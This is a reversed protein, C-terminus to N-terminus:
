EMTLKVMQNFQGMWWLLHKDFLLEVVREPVDGEYPNPGKMWGGNFSYSWMSGKYEVEMQECTAGGYADAMLDLAELKTKPNENNWM